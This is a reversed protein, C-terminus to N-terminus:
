KSTKGQKRRVYEGVYRVGKGKYPEPPRYSRILAAVEGVMQKDAGKVIIKTMEPTEITIGKPPEFPIEHSHGLRCVLKGAKMEARYGTGIIELEKSFGDTVGTVMSLILRQTTGHMAKSTRDDGKRTVLVEENEQKVTVYRSDLKMQLEGKPGKVSAQTPSLTVTVGKPVAIPLKGIRSM